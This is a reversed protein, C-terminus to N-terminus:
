KLGTLYAVIADLDAAALTTFPPMINAFGKVIAASPNLIATRLYAADIRVTTERGNELVTERKGALGRLSIQVPSQPQELTHCALNLCGLRRIAALGPQDDTKAVSVPKEGLWLDFAAPSMIIVKAMMYAHERGCYEACFIDAPGLSEPKLWLYNEKGPVVDEKVRFAPVFFSHIVDVSHLLLKVSKGVPLYLADSTKGNPYTFGWKWMQGTVKVLMADQPANRIVRFGQLGYWFMVLTLLMPLITWAIELWAPQRVSETQPHRSHHYRVIFTIMAACVGLLLIIDCAVIFTFVRNVVGTTLATPYYNM